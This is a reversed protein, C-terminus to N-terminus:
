NLTYMYAAVDRAQEANLGLNPMATEPDVDEPAQVWRIMQAPDNPVRGAIYSRRAMFDLPPGVLGQAGRIGPIRHCTGCGRDRVIEAGRRADGVVGAVQLTRRDDTCGGPAVLLLALGAWRLHRWRRSM